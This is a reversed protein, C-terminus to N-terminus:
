LDNRHKIASAVLNVVIATAAVFIIVKLGDILTWFMYPKFLLEKM